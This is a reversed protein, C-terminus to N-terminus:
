HLVGRPSEWAAHREDETSTQVSKGHFYLIKITIVLKSKFRLTFRGKPSWVKLNGIKKRQSDKQSDGARAGLFLDMKLFTKVSCCGKVPAVLLSLSEFVFVLVM